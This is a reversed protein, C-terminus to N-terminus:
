LRLMRAALAFLALLQTSARESDLGALGVEEISPLHNEALLNTHM